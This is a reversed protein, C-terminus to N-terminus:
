ERRAMSDKMQKLQVLQVLFWVVRDVEAARDEMKARKLIEEALEEVKFQFQQFVQVLDKQELLVQHLQVLEVVVL